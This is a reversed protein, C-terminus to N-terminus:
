CDSITFSDTFGEKSSELFQCVSLPRDQSLAKAPEAGECVEREEWLAQLLDEECPPECWEAVM